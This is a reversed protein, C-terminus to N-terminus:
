PTEQRAEQGESVVVSAPLDSLDDIWLMNGEAGPDNQIKYAFSVHRWEDTPAIYDGLNKAVSTLIDSIKFQRILSDAM